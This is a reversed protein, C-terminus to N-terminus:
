PPRSIAIIERGEYGPHLSAVDPVPPGGKRGAGNPGRPSSVRGFVLVGFAPSEGTAPPMGRGAREFLRYDRLIPLRLSRVISRAVLSMLNGVVMVPDNGRGLQYVLFM